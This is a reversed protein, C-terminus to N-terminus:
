DDNSIDTDLYKLYRKLDPYDTTLAIAQKKNIREGNIYPIIIANDFGFTEKAVNYIGNAEVFTSELGVLYDLGIENANKETSFHKLNANFIPHKLLSSTHTIKVQYSLGEMKKQFRNYAPARMFDTVQPKTNVINLKLNNPLHVLVDIRTNIKHSLENPTDDFNENHAVPYNQGCGKIFIQSPNVGNQILEKAVVEAQKSTLYFDNVFDGTNNSHGLLQVTITPYKHLLTTLTKITTNAGEIVGTQADYYIPVITYTMGDTSITSEKTKPISNNNASALLSDLSSLSNVAKGLVDIFTRPNSRSLQSVLNQRYYAVYIDLGGIGGLRNSTFYAKMGDVDMWFDKDDATSNIPVGENEPISWEQLKDDFSSNYIDFGGLSLKNNSSFYLQRGNKTLFPSVEDAVSNIVGGLNVAESWNGMENLTTYYLDKGGYGGPRDSSFIALSDSPFFYDGDWYNSAAGLAFPIIVELTDTDFNDVVVETYNGDLEKLYVIQYGNNFFGSISEGLSTNYRSNLLTSKGWAGGKQNSTYINPRYYGEYLNPQNNRDLKVSSTTSRNSSYFIKKPYQPNFCARYDDDSSNISKGLNSVVAGSRKNTIPAGYICQLLHRKMTIREPTKEELSRIYEKYHTAAKAFDGSLHAIRALYYAAKPTYKRANEKYYEFSKTAESMNELEFYCIGMKYDLEVEKSYNMKISGLVKLAKAYEKQKFLEEGEKKLKAPSQAVSYSISSFLILLTYLVIRYYM